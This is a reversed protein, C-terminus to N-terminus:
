QHRSVVDQMACVFHLFAPVKVNNNKAARCCADCRCFSKSNPFLNWIGNSEEVRKASLFFGRMTTTLAKQDYKEVAKNYITM